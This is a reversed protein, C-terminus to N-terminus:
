NERTTCLILITLTFTVGACQYAAEEPCQRAPHYLNNDDNHLTVEAARMWRTTRYQKFKNFQNSIDSDM